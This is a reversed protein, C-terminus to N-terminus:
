DPSTGKKYIRCDWGDRERRRYEGNCQRLTGGTIKLWQPGHAPHRGWLVFETQDKKPM